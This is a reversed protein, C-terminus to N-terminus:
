LQRQEVIANLVQAFRRATNPYTYEEMQDLDGTFPACGYSRYARYLELLAAQIEHTTVVYIGARTKRLIDALADGPIGGCALIPRRAALYEFFKLSYVGPESTDEWNLFLLVHSERQRHISERRSTPGYQTVVDTLNRRQIERQLWLYRPGHFRLEIVDPDIAREAILRQLATLVREPDQKGAYISGTYTVSFKETLAAPPENRDDPDFGNPILIIEAQYLKEQGKAVVPAAATVVRARALTRRELREEMWRRLRGYPYNHNQTWSDRFDACWPLGFQSTLEAAVIHSTPFPSSSVLANFPEAQLLSTAARLAPRKWTRETDPYALVSQYWRLLVDLFSAKSATGFREKLQETISRSTAFGVSAFAKRWLRFVDGRYPAEVIRARQLFRAPFGLRAEADRDMPPTVITTEWGADPLYAGWALLRPFAHYINAVILVKKV